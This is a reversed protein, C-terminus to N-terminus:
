RRGRSPPAVESPGVNADLWANLTACADWVRQAHALAADRGIGAPGRELRRGAFLARHRLWRVRPHDRPYGRPATKLAEGWIEAGGATAVALAGLLEEGTVDAVVADRYRALQDSAMVYYGTGAMLGRASLQAYLAAASDPRHAIMGYTETKYPSKDPSFRVDRNQRFMRVEGGYEGALEDLMAELAGRVARDYVERHAHFWSRSNDASLGHLWDFAEGAFGTFLPDAGTPTM